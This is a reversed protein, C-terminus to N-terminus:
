LYFQLKMPHAEKPCAWMIIIIKILRKDLDYDEPVDGHYCRMCRVTLDIWYTITCSLDLVTCYLTLFFSNWNDVTIFSMKCGKHLSYFMSVMVTEQRAARRSLAAIIWGAGLHFSFELNFFFVFFVKRKWHWQKKFQKNYNNYFIYSFDERHIM